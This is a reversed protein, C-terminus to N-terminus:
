PTVELRRLDLPSRGRIAQPHNVWPFRIDTSRACILFIIAPPEAGAGQTVKRQERSSFDGFSFAGGPGRGSRPDGRAANAEPPACVACGQAPHARERDRARGQSGASRSGKASPKVLPPKFVSGAPYDSTPQEFGRRLSGLVSGPRPTTALSKISGSARQIAGPSNPSRGASALLAPSRSHHQRAAFRGPRIEKPSKEKDTWLFTVQRPDAVWLYADGSAVCFRKKNACLVRSGILVQIGGKTTIVVIGGFFSVPRM